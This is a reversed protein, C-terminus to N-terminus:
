PHAKPRRSDNPFIGLVKTRRKIEGNVREIPNTSYM